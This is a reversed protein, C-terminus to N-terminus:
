LKKGFDVTGSLTMTSSRDRICMEEPQGSPVVRTLTLAAQVARRASDEQAQPYGFYALLGGGFTQVLHGGFAQIIEACRPQPAVLLAM